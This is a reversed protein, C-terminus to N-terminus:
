PNAISRATAIRDIMKQQQDAAEANSRDRYFRVLWERLPILGPNLDVAKLMAAEAGAADGLNLRADALIAHVRVSTADRVLLRQCLDSCDNWQRSLYQVDLMGDLAAEHNPDEKLSRAFYNQAAALDQKELALAGLATLLSVDRDFRQLTQEMMLRLSSPIPIGKRKCHVYTGIVLARRKEDPSWHKLADEFLTLDLLKSPEPKEESSPMTRLVRHDTQVVHSMNNSGLRPMHCAICNDGETRRKETDLKCAQDKHCAMCRTRYFDVRGEPAPVSHPDHCSICGFRGDSERFCRSDRMQQVHNVSRTHGDPTVATGQDVVAWVDSLLMGARFDHHSKGERLVRAASEFHCQFCVADRRMPELKAPNVIKDRDNSDAATRGQFDVHEGGAGHCRECGIAREHFPEAAFSEPGASGVAVRGAHCATCEENIRRNFRRVDDPQYAPALAWTAGDRYWNIPSMFMLDGRREVFARARRGSGVSYSIPHEQRYIENGDADTMSESHIFREGIREAHLSRKKGPITAPLNSEAPLWPESTIPQFSRAMPHSAFSQNIDAHCEICATSGVFRIALSQDHLHEENTEREAAAPLTVTPPEPEQKSRGFFIVGAAMLLAITVLGILLCGGLLAIVLLTPSVKVPSKM